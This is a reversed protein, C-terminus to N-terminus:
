RAAMALFKKMPKRPTKFLGIPLLVNSVASQLRNVKLQGSVDKKASARRRAFVDAFLRSVIPKLFKIM